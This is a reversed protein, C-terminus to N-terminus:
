LHNLVLTFNQCSSLTENELTNFLTRALSGSQAFKNDMLSKLVKSELEKKGTPSLTKHTFSHIFCIDGPMFTDSTPYFVNEMTSGLPPVKNLLRRPFSGKSPLHYVSEEMSTIHEITSNKPNIHLLTTLTNKHLRDHFLIENLRTAFNHLHFPKSSVSHLYSYLMSHTIARINIIPLFSTDNGEETNAMLIFYTGDVLRFFEYYIRPSTTSSSITLGIELDDYKPLTEPLLEKQLNSLSFPQGPQELDSRLYTSIETIFDVIDETRHHYDPALAKELIKQMPLDVLSLNVKGFSLKGTLLEYTIIALSYIDTNYSVSLPNKKQEPSMYSPTGIIPNKAFGPTSRNSKKLEAIGFDILKVVGDTTIIINEPKIDRHIIKHSHLHLLAYSVKIIIELSRKKSFSGNEIFTTLTVGPVYEMAIYLGKAWKGSEYVTIINEHSAKKIIEAELLFRDILDKNEILNPALIKVAALRDHELDNALYLYSMSGTHLLSEIKYKGIKSIQPAFNPAKFTPLTERGQIDSKAM